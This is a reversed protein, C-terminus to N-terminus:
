HEDVKREYVPADSPLPLARSRDGAVDGAAAAQDTPAVGPTPAAQM